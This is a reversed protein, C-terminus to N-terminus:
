IFRRHLQKKVIIFIEFQLGTFLSVKVLPTSTQIHNQAIDPLLASAQRSLVDDLQESVVRERAKRERKNEM